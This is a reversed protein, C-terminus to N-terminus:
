RSSHAPSAAVDSENDLNGPGFTDVPTVAARAPVSDRALADDVYDPEASRDTDEPEGGVEGRRKRRVSLGEVLSAVILTLATGALGVGAVALFRNRQDLLSQSDVTVPLLTVRNTEAIKETEQLQDLLTETRNVVVGLVEEADADSAATVAILVVPGATSVDRTVKIEVGPYEEIVDNKENESGVARVLVDAAPTLGGLFLYPNAGEPMSAAGPILLQTSSREYGPPIVSWAGAALAAALLIGPIVIYWRRWLGRLTDALTM